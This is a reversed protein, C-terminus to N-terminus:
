LLPLRHPASGGVAWRGFPLHISARLQVVVCPSQLEVVSNPLQEELVEGGKEGGVFIKEEVRPPVRLLPRRCLTPLGDGLEVFGGEEGLLRAAMQEEKRSEELSLGTTAM